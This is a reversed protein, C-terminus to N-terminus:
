VGGVDWQDFSRVLLNEDGLVFHIHEVEDRDVELARTKL